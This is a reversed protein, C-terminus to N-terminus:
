ACVCACVYANVMEETEHTDTPQSQPTDTATSESFDGFSNDDFAFDTASNCAFGDGDGWDGDSF